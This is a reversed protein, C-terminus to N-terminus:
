KKRRTIKDDKVKEAKALLEARVQPMLKIEQIPNEGAGRHHEAVLYMVEPPTVFDKPIVTGREMKLLINALPLDIKEVQEDEELSKANLKEQIAKLQDMLEDTSEEKTEDVIPEPENTM